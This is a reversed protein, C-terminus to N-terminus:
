EPSANVAFGNWMVLLSVRHVQTNPSTREHHSGMCQCDKEELKMGLDKQYGALEMTM